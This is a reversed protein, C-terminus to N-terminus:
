FRHGPCEDRAASGATAESGGARELVGEERLPALSCSSQPETEREDRARQPAQSTKQRPVHTTGRM